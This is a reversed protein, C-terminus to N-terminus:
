GNAAAIARWPRPPPATRNASVSRRSLDPQPSATEGREDANRRQQRHERCLRMATMMEKEITSTSLGLARGIEPYTWGHVRQLLFIRRTRPPLERLSRGIQELEARAGIAHDPTCRDVAQDQHEPQCAYDIRVKKARVHDLALNQATRFLLSTDERGFCRTALRLWTDHAIDEATSPCGVIRNVLRVIREREHVFAQTLIDVMTPGRILVRDRNM